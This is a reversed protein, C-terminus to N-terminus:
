SAQGTPWAPLSRKLIAPVSVSPQWAAAASTRDAARRIYKETSERNAHGLMRQIDSIDEGAESALTAATARAVHAALRPQGSIGAAALMRKYVSSLRARTVPELRGHSAMRRLGILGDAFNPFVADDPRLPRGIAATLQDRWLGVVEILDDPLTLPKWRNGKRLLRWKPVGREVVFSDWTAAAVEFGRPGVRTLLMFLVLDRRDVLRAEPRSVIAAQVALVANVEELTLAPTPDKPDIQGRPGVRLFPNSPAAREDTAVFYYGRLASCHAKVASDGLRNSLEAAFEQAQWHRLDLPYYGQRQCWLLFRRLRFSDCYATHPNKIGVLRALAMQTVPDDPALGAELIVQRARTRYWATQEEPPRRYRAM